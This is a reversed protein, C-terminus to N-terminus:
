SCGLSEEDEWQTVSLTPQPVRWESGTWQFDEDRSDPAGVLTDPFSGFLVAKRVQMDMTECKVEALSSIKDFPSLM